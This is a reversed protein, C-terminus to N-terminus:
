ENQDEQDDFDEEPLFPLVQETHFTKFDKFIDDIGTNIDDVLGICSLSHFEKYKEILDKYDNFSLSIFDKITIMDVVKSNNYFGKHTKEIETKFNLIYEKQNHDTVTIKFNNYDDDFLKGDAIQNLKSIKKNYLARKTSSYKAKFGADIVKKFLEPGNFQKLTADNPNAFVFKLEINETSPNFIIDDLSLNLIGVFTESNELKSFNVIFNLAFTSQLYETPDNLNKIYSDLNVKSENPTIRFFNKFEKFRVRGNKGIMEVLNGNPLDLKTYMKRLEENSRITYLDLFQAILM